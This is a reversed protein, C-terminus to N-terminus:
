NHESHHPVIGTNMPEPLANYSSINQAETFSEISFETFTNQNTLESIDIEVTESEEYEDFEAYQFKNSIDTNHTTEYEYFEM